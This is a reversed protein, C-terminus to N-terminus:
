QLQEMLTKPFYGLDRDAAQGGTAGSLRSILSGLESPASSGGGTLITRQLDNLAQKQLSNAAAHAMGGAAAAGGALAMAGAGGPGGAAAGGIGVMGLLQMMLSSRGPSLGAITRLLNDLPAGQVFKEMAEVESPTFYGTKKNERLLKGIEQRATNITNGGTGSYSARQSGSNIADTIADSRAGRRYAADAARRADQVKPPLADYLKQRARSALTAQTANSSKAASGFAELLDDVERYTVERGEKTARKVAKEVAKIRQYVVPDGFKGAGVRDMDDIIAAAKAGFGPVPENDDLLNTYTRKADAIQRAAEGDADFKGARPVGTLRGLGYATAGGLAAGKAADEGVQLAQQMVNGGDTESHGAGSLGGWLSGSAVTRGLTPAAGGGGTALVTGAGGIAENVGSMIPNNARNNALANRRENLSDRYIDGFARDEGGLRGAAAEIGAEIEDQWGFTLGQNVSALADQLGGMFGRDSLREIEPMLKRQAEEANNATVTIEAGNDLTYAWTGM